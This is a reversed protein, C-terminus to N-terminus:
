PNGNQSTVDDGGKPLQCGNFSIAVSQGSDLSDPQVQFHLDARAQSACAALLAAVLVQRQSM